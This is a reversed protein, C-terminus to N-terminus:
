DVGYILQKKDKVLIINKPQSWLGQAKPHTIVTDIIPVFNQLISYLKRQFLIFHLNFVVGSFWACLCCWSTGHEIQKKM